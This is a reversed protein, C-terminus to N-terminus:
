STRCCVSGPANVHPRGASCCNGVRLLRVASLACTPSSYMIIPLPKCGTLSTGAPQTSAMAPRPCAMMRVAVSEDVGAQLGRAGMSKWTLRKHDPHHVVQKHQGHCAQPRGTMWAM